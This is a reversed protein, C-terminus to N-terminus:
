MKQIDGDYADATQMEGKTIERLLNLGEVFEGKLLRLAHYGFSALMCDMASELKEKAVVLEDVIVRHEEMTTSDRKGGHKTFFDLLWKGIFIQEELAKFEEFDRDALREMKEEVTGGRSDLSQLLDLQIGAPTRAQTQVVLKLVDANSSFRSCENVLYGFRKDEM